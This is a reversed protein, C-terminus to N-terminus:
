TARLRGRSALVCADRHDPHVYGPAKWEDVAVRILEGREVYADLDADKIRRGIRFYDAIWRAQTVGLARVAGLVFAHRMAELSPPEADALKMKALVRERLDYVRQFNDRRAIMLEGHAFLAELWRKEDKWGWWGGTRKEKSEFDSSKLGGEDRIRALIATMEADHERRNREASKMSWHGVRELAHRRHLPYDAAPAFCAEHAWCEFIAGEDLLADLWPARYAGLRSYLVLYPSRAVVSITDIQLVRMREIAGLVDAKKARRRPRALLGQAHLHLLRAQHASLRIDAAIPPPKM